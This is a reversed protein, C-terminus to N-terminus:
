SYKKKRERVEFGIQRRPPEPEDPPPSFLTMIQQLVEVIATEHIDLRATLKKEIEALKEALDRQAILIQRMKVFARVVFVSMQVARPSNLVNAAMIAGHETFARPRYRPNRHSQSGTVFQSRIVRVEQPTTIFSFDKPFRKKNRRVAQNLIKTSVGYIKALDFDLIIKQDRIEFIRTEIEEQAVIEEKESM